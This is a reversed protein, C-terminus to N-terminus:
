PVVPSRCHTRFVYHSPPLSICLALSATKGSSQLTLKGQVKSLRVGNCHVRSVPKKGARVLRALAARHLPAPIMLRDRFGVESKQRASLHCPRQTHTRGCVYLNRKGLTVQVGDFVWALEDVPERVLTLVLLPCTSHSVVFRPNHQSTQGGCVISRPLFSYHTFPPHLSSPSRPRPSTHWHVWDWVWVWAGAL